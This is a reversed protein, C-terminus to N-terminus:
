KLLSPLWLSLQPVLTVVALTVLSIWIFPLVGPIMRNVSSKTIGAAVFLNFGFPPTYMGIASNVVMIIGLHIPDIGLQYALPLFLPAFILTTSTPDIFMGSILLIINMLLLIVLKSQSISLILEGLMLPVQLRTLLWAFISAGSILIMIQAVGIASEFSVNMLEKIDIEKYIFMAVFIAYVAAVASSETPTFIGGYIGGIVIIPIGLAWSADKLANLLEKFSAKNNAKLNNKKAYFYTYVMFVLGFLLGPIVGAIFLEGVSVGAVTGYVIMGISPPIILAVAASSTILGTAFDMKYNQALLAPYVVGGIAAVTAPSSGSVAGFFMCAVITAHALGGTLHGVAVDALNIIRKSLGGTKMVNAAFIFCPVAILTFKDVGSFMRQSIIELPINQTFLLMYIASSLIMSIYVPINIMLFVFLLIFLIVAM